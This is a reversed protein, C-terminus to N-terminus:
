FGGEFTHEKHTKFFSDDLKLTEFKLEVLEYSLNFYNSIDKITFSELYIFEELLMNDTLLLESAFLNAEKEVKTEFYLSNSNFEFCNMNKHLFYHALEHAIVMDIESENEINYNVHIIYRNKYFQLFGKVSGLDSKLIIIGLHEIIRNVNNSNYFEVIKNAKDKM